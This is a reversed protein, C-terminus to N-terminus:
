FLWRGGCFWFVILASVCTILAFPLPSSNSNFLSENYTLRDRLLLLQDQSFVKNAQTQTANKSLSVSKSPVIITEFEADIIDHQSILINAV